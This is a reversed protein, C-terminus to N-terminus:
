QESDNDQEKSIKILHNLGIKRANENKAFSEDKAYFVSGAVYLEGGDSQSVSIKGNETKLNKFIASIASPFILHKSGRCTFM